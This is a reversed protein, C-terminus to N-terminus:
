KKKTKIKAATSRAGTVTKGGATKYAAIKYRYSTNKKLGKNLYTTSKTRAIKVYKKKATDYRYIYYGSAGSVKKWSLKVSSKSKAYAKPKKVQAPKTSATLVRSYKGYKKGSKSTQWARIKYKYTKGSSLKKETYSTSTVSAIRVYKKTKTNYRYVEYGKAGSAKKWSLKYGSTKVSSVKLGSVAGIKGSSKGDPDTKDPDNQGDGGIVAPVESSFGGTVTSTGYTIYACVKYRSGNAANKHTFSTKATQGINKFSSQSSSSCYIQYGSADPVPNWSLKVNKSNDVTIKLDKVQELSISGSVAKSMKGMIIRGNDSLYPCIKYSYQSGYFIDSDEYSASETKGAELFENTKSDQRYIQYGDACPLAEWSLVAGKATLSKLKLASVSNDNWAIEYDSSLKGDYYMSGSFDTEVQYTGPYKPNPSYSVQYDSAPIFTEDDAYVSIEPTQEQGNYEATEWETKITKPVSITKTVASQSGNKKRYTLTGDTGASADAKRIELSIESTFAKIRLCTGSDNLDTISKGSRIAFSQNPKTSSVFRVWDSNDYTADVFLYGGSPFTFVVSFSNGPRVIVPHDLKVTHYGTYTLTGSQPTALLPTGSKPDGEKPNEYIQLSYELDPTHNGISVAELLQDATGSVEYVNAASGKSYIKQTRIGASGDYQYNYDYNDASEFQFVFAKDKLTEEEYSMWFYGGDGWDPGWSNRVLWAGNSAPALNPNFNERSFNDDWGVISVAHGGEGKGGSYYAITKGTEYHTEHYYEKSSKYSIALVGYEMIMKKILEHSDPTNDMPLWYANQLHAADDFAVSEKLNRVDNDNNPYPATEELAGAKWSALNWTTFLSNGGRNMFDKPAPKGDQMCVTSDGALNGLPDDADHYFFYALQYESLDLSADAWAGGKVSQNKKIMGGEGSAMAAFTWCTGYPNQNRVSPLGSRGDYSSPVPTDRMSPIGEEIPVNLGPLDYDVEHYGEVTNEEVNQTQGTQHSDFHTQAAFATRSSGTVIGLTLLVAQIGLAITRKKM